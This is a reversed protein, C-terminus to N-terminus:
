KVTSSAWFPRSLQAPRLSALFHEEYLALPKSDMFTAASLSPLLWTSGTRNASGRHATTTVTLPLGDNEVPEGQFFIVIQDVAQHLMM